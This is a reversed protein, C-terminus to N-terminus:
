ERRHQSTVVRAGRLDLRQEVRERVRSRRRASPIRGFGDGLLQYRPDGIVSGLVVGTTVIVSVASGSRVSRVAVAAARAVGLSRPRSRRARRLHALAPEDRGALDEGREGIELGVGVLQARSQSMNSDRPMLTSSSIASSSCARLGAGRPCTAPSTAGRRRCRTASCRGLAALVPRAARRRTARTTRRARHRARTAAPASSADVCLSPPLKSGTRMYRLSIPLTGSSVASCSTVSALRMSAPSSAVRSARRRRRRRRAADLDALVLPRAQVRHLAVALEGAPLEGLRVQPEDHRDGLTVDAAPMASSSRM